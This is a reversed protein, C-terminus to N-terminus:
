FLWTAGCNSFVAQTSWTGSVANWCGADTAAGTSFTSGRVSGQTALGDDVKRDIEGLLDSPLRAGTKLNHQDRVPGAYNSDYILQMVHGYANSPVAGVAETVNNICTYAGNVFGAKSLHEWAMIFEGNAREIQSNGNGNGPSGGGCTLSVGPITVTAGAFDGPFARFRDVFGLYAAKIDDQQQIISRVRAGVILEQGKFVGVLLLGIIVMVIAIEILTFGSPRRSRMAYMFFAPRLGREDM